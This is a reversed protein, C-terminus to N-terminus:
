GYTGEYNAVVTMMSLTESGEVPDYTFSREKPRIGADRAARDLESVIASSATRRDSFYQTMFQDGTTRAQEVKGVLHRMRVLAAHRRQLDGRLRTIQEELEEASGGVPQLVAWAAILNALLLVGLALRAVFQPEKAARARLGSPLSLKFSRPM